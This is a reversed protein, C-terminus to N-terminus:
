PLIGGEGGGGAEFMEVDRNSVQNGLLTIMMMMMMMM